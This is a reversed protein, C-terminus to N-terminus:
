LTDVVSGSARRPLTRILCGPPIAHAAGRVGRKHFVEYGLFWINQNDAGFLSQVTERYARVRTLYLNLAPIIALRRVLMMLFVTQRGRSFNPPSLVLTQWSGIM